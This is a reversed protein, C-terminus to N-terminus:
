KNNYTNMTQQMGISCFSYIIKIVTLIKKDVIELEADSWSSLVFDSQKGEQFTNGVGFRLRPYLSTNLTEFINKLGNHGGDSGKSKIRLKGLPLSIDDTIILINELKIKEKQIWYNVAKGSLNMYTNPKLLILTRGKFKTKAILGLKEAEFCINGENALFDLAKFGVNHRTNVYRIGPNGLGVILYKM